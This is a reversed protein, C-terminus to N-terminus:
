TDPQPPALKFEKIFQQTTPDAYAQVSMERIRSKIKAPFTVVKENKNTYYLSNPSNMCIGAYNQLVGGQAPTILWM